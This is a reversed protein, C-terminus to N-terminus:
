RPAKMRIRLANRPSATLSRRTAERDADGAGGPGPGGARPARGIEVRVWDHPDDLRRGRQDAAALWGPGIVVLLM